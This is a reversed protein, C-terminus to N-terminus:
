KILCENFLIEHVENAQQEANVLSDAGTVKRRHSICDARLLEPLPASYGVRLFRLTKFRNLAFTLYNTVTQPFVFFLTNKKRKEDHIKTSNMLLIALVCQKTM